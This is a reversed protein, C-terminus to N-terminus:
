FVCQHFFRVSFRVPQIPQPDFLLGELQSSSRSYSSKEHSTISTVKMHSLTRTTTIFVAETESNFLGRSRRRTHTHDQAGNTHVKRTHEACADASQLILMRLLKQHAVMAHSNENLILFICSFLYVYQLWWPFTSCDGHISEIMRLCNWPLLLQWTTKQFPWNNNFGKCRKYKKILKRTYVTTSFCHIIVLWTILHLMGSWTQWLLFFFERMKTHCCYTNTVLRLPIVSLEIEAKYQKQSDVCTFMVSVVQPTYSQKRHEHHRHHPSSPPSTGNRTEGQPSDPVEEFDKFLYHM